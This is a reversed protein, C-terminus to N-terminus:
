MPGSGGYLKASVSRLWSAAAHAQDGAQERQRERRYAAGHGEAPHDLLLRLLLRVVVRGYAGRQGLQAARACGALEALRLDGFRLVGQQFLHDRKAPEAFLLTIALELSFPFSDAM